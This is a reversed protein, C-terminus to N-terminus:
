LAVPRITTPALGFLSMAAIYGSAGAHGVSAYAIAIALFLAALALDITSVGAEEQRAPARRRLGQGPAPFRPPHLDAHHRHRCPRATGAGRAPQRQIRARPQGGLPAASASARTALPRCGAGLAQAPQA